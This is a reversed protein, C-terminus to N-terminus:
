LCRALAGVRCSRTRPRTFEHGERDFDLDVDFAASLLTREVRALDLAAPPPAREVCVLMDVLTSEVKSSKM